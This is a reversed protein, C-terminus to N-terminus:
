NQGSLVFDSDYWRERNAFVLGSITGLFRASNESDHEQHVKIAVDLLHQTERWSSAMAHSFDGTRLALQFAELSNLLM